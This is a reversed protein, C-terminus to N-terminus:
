EGEETAEPDTHPQNILYTIITGTDKELQNDNIAVLVLNVDPNAQAVYGIGNIKVVSDFTLEKETFQLFAEQCALAFASKPNGTWSPLVDTKEYTITSLGCITQLAQDVELMSEETLCCSAINITLQEETMSVTGMNTISLVNDEEDRAYVGDILTYMASVFTNQSEATLVQAPMSVEECTITLDPYDELYRENWKDTVYQVRTQVKELYEDPVVLTMSAGQPYLTSGTGGSFGALEFIIANTKFYALMNSLEKIPNPYSSIRSDPSGGPLGAISITLAHTGTPATYTLPGTIAYVGSQSAQFSWAARAGESLYFVNAEPPIVEPDLGQIGYLDSGSGATFIVTLDGTNENNKAIYMACAMPDIYAMFNQADYNCLVVTPSADGYYEGAPVHLIVNGLDDTERQIGKTDAWNSLYDAIKENTVLTGASDLLDTKYASAKTEVKTPLDEEESDNNGCGVTLLTTLLLCFVLSIAIPRKM